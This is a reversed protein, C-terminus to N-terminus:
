PSWFKVPFLTAKQPPFFKYYNGYFFACTQGRTKTTMATRALASYMQSHKVWAAEEGHRDSGLSISRHGLADHFARTRGPSHGTPRSKGPAWHPEWARPRGPCGAELRAREERIVAQADLASRRAAQRASQQSM